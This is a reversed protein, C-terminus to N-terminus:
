VIVLTKYPNLFLKLGQGVGVLRIIVWFDDGSGISDIVIRYILRVKM